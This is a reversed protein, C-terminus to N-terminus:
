WGPYHVESTVLYQQDPVVVRLRVRNMGYHAVQVSGSGRHSNPELEPFGEVVAEQDPQFDGARLLSKAEAESRANRLRSVLWFRPLARSNEYLFYGRLDGALQEGSLERRSIIYRVNMM